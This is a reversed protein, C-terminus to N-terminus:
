SASKDPPQTYMRDIHKAMAINAERWQEREIEALVTEAERLAAMLETEDRRPIHPPAPGLPRRFPLIKAPM